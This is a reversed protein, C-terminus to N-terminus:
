MKILQKNFTIGTKVHTVQIMYSGPTVGSLDIRHTTGSMISAKGIAAGYQSVLQVTFPGQEAGTYQLVVTGRAPNPGVEFQQVMATRQTNPDGGTGGSQTVPGCYNVAIRFAMGKSSCLTSGNGQPSVKIYAYQTGPGANVTTFAPLSSGSGSAALGISPNDNTWTYSNGTGMFPLAATMMGNCYVLNPLPNVTAQPNITISATATTNCGGSGGVTYTVTYTGPTSAALNVQGTAANIDLGATSTFAGGQSGTRTPVAPGAQCYPSGPYSITGASPSVAINFSVPASSCGGAVASATITATQVVGTNNLATFSAINGTGTANLGIATNNNTWSVTTGAVTSLFEVPTTTSGACLAQDSMSDIVPTPNVTIRFIMKRATCGTGGIPEVVVYSQIANTGSNSATFAPITGTGSAPIGIAPNSATWNFTLGPAGSLTVAGYTAGNCLVTNPVADAFATPGIAVQTTTFDTPSTGYRVTYTGPASAALYIAGTVSDISLGAPSASFSGGNTGSFSVQATGTSSCYPSGAYSISASFPNLVVVTATAQYIACGPGPIITYTVTYTGPTSTALNIAGTAANIDLGATSSFNGGGTGTLSVTASGSGALYPTGSYAISASPAAPASLVIGPLTYQCSNADWIVVSYTGAGLGTRDQTTAGNNWQYMYPSTGGSPTLDITGDSAGPCTPHTAQVMGGVPASPQGVTINSITAQCGNADTIRVSYNGASIGSAYQMTAGYNWLYTYGPTGGSPTVNIFGNSGGFCAVNTVVTTGSVPAAPQTVTIGSVTGTCGNNDTIIVSYTGTPLSTRDETTPGSLWNFTYPGTGGTPTLNIAGTNGGFCAVNTVVTTGSVPAAPQTVMIGSVTGTCGNNDTIQVSYTGAPLGTRDETTPGSVWNFTYPGTGGTPTLNIAGTNGGFCAVNTVVRTGSVPATPQSIVVSTSTSGGAADTVTVTYSGATLGSISNTGDGAPNGPSWDYSYPASGSAVVTAAGTAGGYCAINTYSGIYASLTPFSCSITLSYPTIDDSRWRSATTLYALTPPASCDFQWNDVHSPTVLANVGNTLTSPLGTTFSPSAANYAWAGGTQYSFGAIFTVVYPADLVSPSSYAFINDGAAALLFTGSRTVAGVSASTGAANAGSFSIQTGANLNGTYTWSLFGEIGGWSSTNAPDYRNDTFHITTQGSIPKMLMISFSGGGDANVTTFFLGGASLDTAGGRNAACTMILFFLLARLSSHVNPLIHLMHKNTPQLLTFLTACVLAKQM